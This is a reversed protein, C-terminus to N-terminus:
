WRFFEHTGDISYTFDIPVPLKPFTFEADKKYVFPSCFEGNLIPIIESKEWKQGCDPCFVTINVIGNLNDALHRFSNGQIKLNCHCCTFKKLFKLIKNFM